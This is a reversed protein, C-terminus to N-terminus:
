FRRFVSYIHLQKHYLLESPRLSICIIAVTIDCCVIACLGVVGFVIRYRLTKRVNRCWHRLTQVSRCWHRLTKRVSRCWHRFTKPGFHRPDSTDQCRATTGNNLFSTIGKSCVTCYFTGISKWCARFGLIAIEWQTDLRGYLAYNRPNVWTWVEFLIQIPQAMKCPKCNPGASLGHLMHCKYCYAAGPWMQTM